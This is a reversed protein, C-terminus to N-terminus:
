LPVTNVDYVVIVYIVHTGWAFHQNNKGIEVLVQIKEAPKRSFLFLKSNKLLM